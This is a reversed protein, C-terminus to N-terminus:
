YYTLKLALDNMWCRLKYKPLSMPFMEPEESFKLIPLQKHPMNTAKVYINLMREGMYGFIRRQVPDYNSIDIQEEVENLTPFLWSCYEDFQKWGMIFMNLPMLHNSCIMTDWIAKSFPAPSNKKIIDGLLRFDNSNHRECYDLYVSTRLNWSTPLIAYGEGLWQRAEDSVSIDTSTFSATPLTTVPFGSRGAHHFDFYRRYHSLGIYDTDKLNKWAWYLGTLECYSANKQSINDGTDDGTIGLKNESIAKGVHLPMYVDSHAMIDDKHCCVIIKIREM